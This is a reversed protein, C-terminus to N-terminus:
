KLYSFDKEEFERATIWWITETLAATIGANIGNSIGPIWRLRVQFTTRGISAAATSAILSKDYGEDITLGFVKGLSIAMGM